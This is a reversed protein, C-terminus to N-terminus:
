NDGHHWQMKNKALCSTASLGQSPGSCTVLYVSFDTHLMQSGQKFSKMISLLLFHKFIGFHYESDTFGLVSLLIGFHYDSDTFGLVSLLIGFHYDSDTFGLVSL